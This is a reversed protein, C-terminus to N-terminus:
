SDASRASATPLTAPRASPFGQVDRPDSNTGPVAERDLIREDVRQRHGALSPVRTGTWLSLAVLLVIILGGVAVDVNFEGANPWGAETRASGRLFPVVALVAIALLSEATVILPFHHVAVRLAARHDGRLRAARIRPLLVRLNYAGAALLLTVLALKIALSRGYATTLFQSLTGVHTWALWSGSVILAGVAYLAVVSFREWVRRWEDALSTDQVDDAIDNATRHLGMVGIAALVVLGGTWLLAGVIHTITLINGPLAKMTLGGFPLEPVIATLGASVALLGGAARSSPRVRLWVLTVIVPMYFVSQVVAIKGDGLASGRAPPADVYALLVQNSIAQSLGVKAFSAAAAAFHLAATLFVFVAVLPALRGLRWSLVGGQFRPVILVAVALGVGVASALGLDYLVQTAVEAV